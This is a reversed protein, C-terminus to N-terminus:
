KLLREVDLMGWGQQNSPMGLDVACEMIRRKVQKPTLDPEKELLLAIAGSVIPAAMSTGSKASYYRNNNSCSVIADAPAVIEPKMVCQITPGRGAYFIQKKKGVSGISEKSSGVTIIKPSNGPVTVSCEAPGNNGAAAVVVIGVNWAEEVKEQLQISEAEELDDSGGVSLNLIRIHYRNRNLIVWDIGKLMTEIDGNGYKDLVKVMVIRSGPAMGRYRGGSMKGTGCIIGSVHSGHSNDDYPRNTHKVLDNFYLLRDYLDPHEGWIGSDLVAITINKGTLDHTKAYEARLQKRVNEM